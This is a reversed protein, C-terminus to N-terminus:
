LVPALLPQFGAEIQDLAGTAAKEQSDLQENLLGEIKGPLRNIEAIAQWIEKATWASGGVAITAGIIKGVPSPSSRKRAIITPASWHM